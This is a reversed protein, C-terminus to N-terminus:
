KAAARAPRTKRYGYTWSPPDSAPFSAQSAEEVIDLEESMQPEGTDTERSEWNPRSASDM